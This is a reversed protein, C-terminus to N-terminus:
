GTQRIRRRPSSPPPRSSRQSDFKAAAAAAEAAKRLDAPSKGGTQRRDQGCRRTLTEALRVADSAMDERAYPKVDAATASGATLLVLFVAVSRLAQLM